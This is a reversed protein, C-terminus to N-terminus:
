GIVFLRTVMWYDTTVCLITVIRYCVPTHGDLLRKYYFYHSNSLRNEIWHSHSIRKYCFLFKRYDTKVFLNTVIRYDRTVFLLIFVWYNTTVFLVTVVLFETTIFLTYPKGSHMSWYELDHTLEQRVALIHSLVWFFRSQDIIYKLFALMPVLKPNWIVMRALNSFTLKLSLFFANKFKM